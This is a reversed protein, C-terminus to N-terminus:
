EDAGLFEVAQDLVEDRGNDLAEQTIEVMIDPELGQGDLQTGNPTLWRASTVHVSSGDSLDFVLQVSGKGYTPENGVLQARERDRLAGAVIEAASATGGDVLVLLPADPVLTDATSDFIRQGEDTSQQIVVPGEGLFQDAVDVAANLLGGRNQRLDLIYGTAGQEELDTLADAVEQGSEASFRSLRIYGIIPYQELLHYTVSPILIDDRIVDIDVAKDTGQHLVTLVVITGKEGKVLDAIEAVTFDATIPEGDVAILVDGSLIGAKEAPNGPIPELVVDVGDEPRSIYAGIGGFSGQLQERELDRVVPEIFVTYPDELTELSGRIAGYTRQQEVPLQGIYNEDILKWAEWFVDFEEDAHVQNGKTRLESVFYGATFAGAVLLILLLITISNRTRSSM